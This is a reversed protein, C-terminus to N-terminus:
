SQKSKHFKSATYIHNYYFYILIKITFFITLLIIIINFLLFVYVDILNQQIWSQFKLPTVLTGNPHRVTYEISWIALDLPPIQRDRFESSLQKMNKTYSENYFIEEVAHLITQVSLTKIDLYIGVGKAVLIQANSKQDMFFPMVIIPIGKWIAEQTSLLGGHTWVARVNQHSLVEKQMIWKVTMLNDPVEFPVDIDLKWLIRQKLKSLALIVTKITDLGISKWKVNTGLSIVLAGNTAGDLFVRVDQSTVIFVKIFYLPLM